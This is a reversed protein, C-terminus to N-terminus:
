GNKVIWFAWPQATVRGRLGAQAATCDELKLVRSGNGRVLVTDEAAVLETVDIQTSQGSLNLICTIGSGETQRTFALVERSGTDLYEVTGGYNGAHLAMNETRIAALETLLPRYDLRSSQWDIPDPEFFALQHDLGIEDGSYILPMGPLTYLLAWLSPLAEAGYAGLITREWSNKDHNNLFNLAFTGDPYEAALKYKLLSADMSGAAVALLNDYLTWNYNMDFAYNLLEPTTNDEALMLLPKVTELEARAAEWFDAPVGGAHDCRFGDVDYREVWYKMCAIMEARMDVNSYDLDAVDYWGMGPPDTIQGDKDKTYWDPHETIWPCDWGTHNAVWDLMVTMGLAHAKGVLAEFDAETGFEPNIARYDTVAYYSGLSGQRKTESIPHIPMLWLTTVGMDRLGQLHESFAAFTGEPTYQRINVEYMVADKAWAVMYYPEDRTPVPAFSPEVTQFLEAPQADVYAEDDPVIGCGALLLVALLLCLLRKYGNKM